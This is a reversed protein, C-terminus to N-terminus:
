QMYEMILQDIFGEAQLEALIENLAAALETDGEPVVINVPGSSVEGEYVIQLGGVDNALSRAVVSEMLIAQIRGAKLDLAAQDIREYRFYNSDPLLGGDILNDTIWGDQTTGTQAGIVYGALDEPTNITGTFGESVLIADEANYYPDTFDVTRDREETYNFASIALDLKGEQVAAILSDFPMDQIEVELDMRRGIEQILAIDFGVFNGSEDVSEFPPYDASTGVVIKGADQIQDLHSGAATQQCAALLLALILTVLILTTQSTRKM